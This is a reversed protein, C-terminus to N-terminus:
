DTFMKKYDGEIKILEEHTGSQIITGKSMVYVYDAQKVTSLRHSIVLATRDGINEKLHEFLKHEAVTDLASTAEDLIILKSNGYYARAIALKQWQGISIEHGDEFIKGMLTEYGKPMNEIMEDAGSKKAANKIAEISHTHEINGYKINDAISVNYKVFDQFVASIEKRYEEKPYLQVDKGQYFISGSDPQYLGCLLKALTSKGSGNLGVLAYIKMPQLQININRLCSKQSLPYKFTLNQTRILFKNEDIDNNAARSKTEKNKLDLLDFISKLIISNQYLSSINAAISQTLSFSQIFVVIFISLDGVSNKGILSQYAILWVCIMIGIVSLITALLEYISLRRKVSMKEQLLGLRLDLYIKRLYNGLRYLRIEKASIDSTILYSFYSAKRETPTQALRLEQLRKSQQIRILLIPIILLILLPLLAWHISLLISSIVLLLLISKMLNIMGLIISTPKDPGADKARKLTDYYDPSEYFLLDLQVAKEHIKDDIYESVKTAQYEAVLNSIFKILTHSIAIILAMSLTDRLLIGKDISNPSGVVNIIKKTIYLTGFWFLSELTVLIITAITLSPAVSMVLSFTKSINLNGLTHSIKKTIKAM